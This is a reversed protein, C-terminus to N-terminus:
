SNPEITFLAFGKEGIQMVHTKVGMLRSFERSRSVIREKFSSFLFNTWSRSEKFKANCITDLSAAACHRGVFLVGLSRVITGFKSSGVGQVLM